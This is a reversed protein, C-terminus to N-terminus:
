LELFKGAPDLTQQVRQAMVQGNQSGIRPATVAGRLVLGSLDLASLMGHLDQVAGPWAVWALNGGVAYRRHAQTAVLRQELAPIQGATTAVKLLAWGPPAWTFERAAHWAALEGAGSVEEGAGLVTRLQAIRQPLVAEWGGLRV